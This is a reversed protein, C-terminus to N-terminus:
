FTRSELSPSDLQVINVVLNTNTPWWIERYANAEAETIFPGITRVVHREQSYRLVIVFM